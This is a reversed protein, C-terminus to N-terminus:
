DRFAKAFHPSETEKTGTTTLQAALYAEEWAASCADAPPALMKGPAISRTVWSFGGSKRHNIHM